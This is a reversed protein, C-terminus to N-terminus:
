LPPSFMQGHIFIEWFCQVRRTGASSPPMKDNKHQELCTDKSNKESFNNPRNFVASGAAWCM